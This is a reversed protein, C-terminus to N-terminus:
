GFAIYKTINMGTLYCLGLVAGSLIFVKMIFEFIIIAHIKIRFKTMGAVVKNHEKQAIAIADLTKDRVKSFKLTFQEM